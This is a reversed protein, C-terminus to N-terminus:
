YNTILLEKYYAKNNKSTLNSYRSIEIINFDKYMNRIYLNDNYSLIFKGKLNKLAYFLQKHNNETFINDYHKESNFYPPDLYFLTSNSDFSTIIKDFNDNRIIVNKLRKQINSLRSINKYIDKACTNFTRTDTGFSARIIFFYRAAHQIDTLGRM